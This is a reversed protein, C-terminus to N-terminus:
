DLSKEYQIFYTPQFNHGANQRYYNATQFFKNIQERNEFNRKPIIYSSSLAVNILLFSELEKIEGITKWSYRSINYETIEILENENIIIRHECFTGNKQNEGIVDKVKKLATLKIVVLLALIVGFTLATRLCINLVLANFDWENLSGSFFAYIIDAFIFLLYATLFIFVVPRHNKQSPANEKGFLYFDGPTLEYIVEM